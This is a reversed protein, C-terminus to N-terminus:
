CGASPGIGRVVPYVVTFDGRSYAMAQALKYGLHIAAAGVLLLWIHGEPRPVLVLAIPLAMSACSLDIAGRTLWPDHRGKQLAAFVVHTVAAQLALGIALHSGEPTGEIGTIWAEM